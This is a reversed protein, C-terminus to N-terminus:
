DFSAQVDASRALKIFVEELTANSVSWDSVVLEEEGGGGEGGGAAGGGSGGAAGGPGGRGRLGHMHAFVRSLSAESAPLEYKLTAAGHTSSSAYTLRAGPALSRTVMARAAAEQAAPVTISFLLSGAHPHVCLACPRVQLFAPVGRHRVLVVLHTRRPWDRALLCFAAVLWRGGDGLGRAASGGAGRVVQAM